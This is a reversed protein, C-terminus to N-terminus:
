QTWIEEILSGLNLPNFPKYIVGKAGLKKWNFKEDSQATLFIVPISYIKPISQLKKITFEGNYEPMLYDLLILDLNDEKLAIEVGQLGSEATIVSWQNIMELCMKILQQMEKSDDIVLIKLNKNYNKVM